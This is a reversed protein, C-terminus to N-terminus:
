KSNRRNTIRRRRRLRRRGRGRGRGRGHGRRRRGRGRRAPHSSLAHHLPGAVLAAGM